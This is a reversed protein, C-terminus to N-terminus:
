WIRDPLFARAVPQAVEHSRHLLGHNANDVFSGSTRERSRRWVAGGHRFRNHENNAVAPTDVGPAPCLAFLIAIGGQKRVCRKVVPKIAFIRAAFQTRTAEINAERFSLHPVRFYAM